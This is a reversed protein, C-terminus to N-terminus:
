LGFFRGHHPLVAFEGGQDAVMYDSRPKARLSQFFIQLRLRRAMRSCDTMELCGHRSQQYVVHSVEIRTHLGLHPCVAGGLGRPGCSFSAGSQRLLFVYLSSLHWPTM